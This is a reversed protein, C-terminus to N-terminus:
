ISFTLNVQVHNVLAWKQRKIQDCGLWLCLGGDNNQCNETNLLHYKCVHSYISKASNFTMKCNNWECVFEGSPIPTPTPTLSPPPPTIAPVSDGNIKLTSVGNLEPKNLKELSKQKKIPSENFVQNEEVTKDLDNDNKRKRFSEIQGDDDMKDDEDEESDSSTSSSCSHNANGNTLGHKSNGNQLKHDNIMANIKINNENNQAIKREINNIIPDEAKTIENKKEYKKNPDSIITSQQESTEIKVNSTDNLLKSTLKVSNLTGNTQINNNLNEDTLSPPTPPTLLPM